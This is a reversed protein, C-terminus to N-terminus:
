LMCRVDDIAHGVESGFYVKQCKFNCKKPKLYQENLLGMEAYLCWNQCNKPRKFALIIEQFQFGKLYANLHWHKTNLRRM